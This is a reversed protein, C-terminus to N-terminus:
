DDEDQSDDEVEMILGGVFGAGLNYVLAGIIGGIFGLIPSVVAAGAGAVVFMVGMQGNPGGRAMMAAGMAGYLFGAFLGYAFGLVANVKGASVPDIRKLTLRKLM